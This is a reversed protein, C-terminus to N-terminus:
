EVTVTVFAHRFTRDPNRLYTVTADNYLDADDPKFVVACEYSGKKDFSQEPDVFEFHGDIAPRCQEFHNVAEGDTLKLESVSEDVKLTGEVTPLKKVTLNLKYSHVKVTASCRGYAPDDPVFTISVRHIGPEMIHRPNGWIFKGIIQNGDPDVGVGGILDLTYLPKSAIGVASPSPLEAITTPIPDAAFVNLSLAMALILLLPVARRFKSTM